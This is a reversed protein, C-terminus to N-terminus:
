NVASLISDFLSRAIQIIKSSAQYAQQYRLLNAAEEDLNVGSESERTLTAEKLAATAADGAAIGEVNPLTQHPTIYFLNAQSM